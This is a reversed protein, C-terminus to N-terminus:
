TRLITKYPCPWTASGQGCHLHGQCSVKLPTVGGVQEGLVAFGVQISSTLFSITQSQSTCVTHLVALRLCQDM